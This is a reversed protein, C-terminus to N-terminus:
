FDEESSNKTAAVWKATLGARLLRTVLCSLYPSLQKGERFVSPESELLESPLDSM